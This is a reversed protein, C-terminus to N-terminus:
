GRESPTLLAGVRAYYKRLADRSGFFLVVCVTLFGLDTLGFDTLWGSFSPRSVVYAFLLSVCMNAAYQYHKYHLEVLLEYAGIRWTRRM